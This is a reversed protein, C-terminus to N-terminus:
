FPLSAKLSPDADQMRSVMLQAFRQITAFHAQAANNGTITLHTVYRGYSFHLVILQGQNSRLVGATAGLPSYGGGGGVFTASDKAAANEDPYRVILSGVVVEPLDCSVGKGQPRCFENREANFSYGTANSM